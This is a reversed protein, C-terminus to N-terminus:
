DMGSWWLPWFNPITEELLLSETHCCVFNAINRICKELKQACTFENEANCNRGGQHDKFLSSKGWCFKFFFRWPYVFCFNVVNSFWWFTDRKFIMFFKAKSFWWFHRIQTKSNLCKGDIKTCNFIVHRTVSNPQM